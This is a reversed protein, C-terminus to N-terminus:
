LNMLPKGAPNEGKKKGQSIEKKRASKGPANGEMAVDARKKAPDRSKEFLLGREKM